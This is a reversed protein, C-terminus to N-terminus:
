VIYSSAEELYREVIHEPFGMEEDLEDPDAEVLDSVTDIGAEAFVPAMEQWGPLIELPPSHWESIREKALLLGIAKPSLFELQNLTGKKLDAGLDDLLRYM